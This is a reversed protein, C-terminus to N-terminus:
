HSKRANLLIRLIFHDPMKECNLRARIMRSYEMAEPPHCVLEDYTFAPAFLKAQEELFERFDLPPMSCGYEELEDELRRAM